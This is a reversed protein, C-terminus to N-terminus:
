RWAEGEAHFLLVLLPIAAIRAFTLVMPLSGFM